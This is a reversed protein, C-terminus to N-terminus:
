KEQRIKIWDRDTKLVYEAAESLFNDVARIGFTECYAKVEALLETSIKFCIKEFRLEPKATILPM